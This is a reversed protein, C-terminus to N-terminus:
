FRKTIKPKEEIRLATTKHESASIEDGAQKQPVQLGRQKSMKQEGPEDLERELDELVTVVEDGSEPHQGRVWAQLEAPLITLFQELVLLELIQEKTHTEPSLWQRCLERLRRLAERPGPTEQYCFHRFRQRCLERTHCWTEQLCSEQDWVHDEEKVKVQIIDGHAESAPSASAPVRACAAAM